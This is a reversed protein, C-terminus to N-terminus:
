RGVAAQVRATRSKAFANAIQPSRFEYGYRSNATWVHTLVNREGDARFVLKTTVPATLVQAPMTAITAVVRERSDRLELLYSGKRLISYDGAPLAKNGVEFEFPVKVRILPTVSQARAAGAFLLVIFLLQTLTRRILRM